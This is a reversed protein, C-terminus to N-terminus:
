KETEILDSIYQVLLFHEPNQFYLRCDSLIGVRNPFLSQYEIMTMPIM